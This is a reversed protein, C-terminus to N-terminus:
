EPGMVVAAFVGWACCAIFKELSVDYQFSSGWWRVAKGLAHVKYAFLVWYIRPTSTCIKKDFVPRCKYILDM